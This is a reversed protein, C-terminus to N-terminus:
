QNLNNTTRGSIGITMHHKIRMFSLYRAGHLFGHINGRSTSLYLNRIIFFVSNDWGSNNRADFIEAELLFFFFDIFYWFSDVFFDINTSQFKLHINGRCIQIKFFSCFQSIGNEFQSLINLCRAVITLSMIQMRKGYRTLHPYTKYLKSKRKPVM